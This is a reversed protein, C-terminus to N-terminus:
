VDNLEALTDERGAKYGKCYATDLKLTTPIMNNKYLYVILISVFGAFLSIFAVVFGIFQFVLIPEFM